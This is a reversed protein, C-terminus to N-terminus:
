ETAELASFGEWMLDIQSANCVMWSDGWPTVYYFEDLRYFEVTHTTGDTFYYEMTIKDKEDYDPAEAGPEIEYDMMIGIVKQYQTRFASGDVLKDNLYYVELREASSEETQSVESEDQRLIRGEYSQGEATGTVKFGELEKINYIFVLKQLYEFPEFEFCDLSTAAVTYVDNSDGERFYILEEGDENTGASTGFYYDVTHYEYVPEAEQASSDESSSEDADSEVEARTTLKVHHEFSEEGLGYQDLDEADSEVLKEISVSTYEAFMDGVNGSVVAAYWDYPQLMKFASSDYIKENTDDEDRLEIEIPRSGKEQLFLYSLEEEVNIQEITISRLNTLDYGAYTAVSKYITFVGERDSLMGYRYVGDPTENGVYVTVEHGDTYHITVTAYPDDLGFNALDVSDKTEAVTSVGRLASGISTLNSISASTLEWDEYGKLTWTQETETNGSSDETETLKSVLTYTAADNEVEITEIETADYELLHETETSWSSEESSEEGTPMIGQNQLVAIVAVAAILILLIGGFLALRKGKSM